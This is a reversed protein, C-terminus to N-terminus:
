DLDRLEDDVYGYSKALDRISRLLDGPLENELDSWSFERYHPRTHTKKSIKEIATKDLEFGLLISMHSFAREIDEVRYTYEAKQDALLNWYYWYKACKVVHSDDDNIEPVHQRIYDWSRKPAVSYYSTIQRLPNRVQHFVHEFHIDYASPGWPSYPDDVAMPWSCSGHVGWREHGIQIGCMNMLATIYGTGSRGCGTILLFKTHKKHSPILGNDSNCNIQAGGVLSKKLLLIFLFLFNKHM